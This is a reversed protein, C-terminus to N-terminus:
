NVRGKNLKRATKANTKTRQGKSPYGQKLRRGRYSNQEVLTTLSTKVWSDLAGMIPSHKITSLNQGSPRNSIKRKNAICVFSFNFISSLDSLSNLTLPHNRKAYSSLVLNLQELKHHALNSFQTKTSIGLLACLKKATSHSIGKIELLNLYVTKNKIWNLGFM